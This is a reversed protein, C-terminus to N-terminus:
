HCWDFLHYWWFYIAKKKAIYKHDGFNHSFKLDNKFAIAVPLISTCGVATARLFFDNYNIFDQM